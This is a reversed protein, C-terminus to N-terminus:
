SMETPPAALNTPLFTRTRIVATISPIAYACRTPASTSESSGIVASPSASRGVRARRFVFDCSTSSTASSSAVLGTSSTTSAGAFDGRLRVGALLRGLVGVSSVSSVGFFAGGRGRRLFGTSTSGSTRGVALRRRLGGGRLGLRPRLGPRSASSACGAHCARRGCGGGCAATAASPEVARGPRGRRQPWASVQSWHRGPAALLQRRRHDVDRAAIEAVLVLVLRALFRGVTGLRRGLPAPARAAASAALSAAGHCPASCPPPSATPCGVRLGAGRSPRRLVAAFALRARAEFGLSSLGIPAYVGILSHPSRSSRLSYRSSKARERARRGRKGRKHVVCDDSDAALLMADAVALREDDVAHAGVLALRELGVHQEAVVADLDDTVTSACSRPGFIRM